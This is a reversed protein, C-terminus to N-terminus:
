LNLMGGTETPGVGVPVSGGDRGGVQPVAQPEVMTELLVRRLTKRRAAQDDSPPRSTIFAYPDHLMPNPGELYKDPSDYKIDDPVSFSQRPSYAPPNSSQDRLGSVVDADLASIMNADFVDSVDEPEGSGTIADLYFQQTDPDLRDGFGFKRAEAVADEPSMGEKHMRYFAIAMGTRDSGHRCHVYVPKKSELLRAINNRLFDVLATSGRGSIPIILHEMGLDQVAQHIKSGIEGDLSIVTRLDLVSAMMRLDDISPEGGRYIQDSVLAFNKTM